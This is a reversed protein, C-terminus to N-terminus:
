QHASLARGCNDSGVREVAVLLGSRLGKISKAQPKVACGCHLGYGRRLNQLIAVKEGGCDCRCRWQSEKGKMGVFEVVVVKGFREEIINSRPASLPSSKGQGRLGYKARRTEWAKALRAAHDTMGVAACDAKARRLETGM